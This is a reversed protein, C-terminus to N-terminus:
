MGKNMKDIQVLLWILAGFLVFLEVIMVLLTMKETIELELGGTKKRM